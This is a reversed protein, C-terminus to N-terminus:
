ILFDDNYDDNYSGVGAACACNDPNLWIGKYYLRVFVNEIKGEDIFPYNGEVEVSFNGEANTNGRGLFVIDLPEKRWLEVEVDPLHVFDPVTGTVFVSEIKGAVTFKRTYEM